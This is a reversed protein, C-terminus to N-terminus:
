VVSRLVPCCYAVATSNALYARKEKAVHCMGAFDKAWTPNVAVHQAQTKLPRLMICTHEGTTENPTLRMYVPDFQAKVWFKLLQATVGYSVGIQHILESSPTM